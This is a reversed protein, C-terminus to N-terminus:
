PGLIPDHFWSYIFIVYLYIRQEIFSSNKVYSLYIVSEM